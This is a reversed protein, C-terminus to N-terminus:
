LVKGMKGMHAVNRTKAMEKKIHSQCCRVVLVFLAATMVCNQRDTQRDTQGTGEESRCVLIGTLVRIGASSV